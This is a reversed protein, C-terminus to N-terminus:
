LCVIVTDTQSVTKFVHNRYGLRCVIIRRMIFKKYSEHLSLRVLRFQGIIKDPARHRPALCIHVVPAAKRSIHYTGIMVIRLATVLLTLRYNLGMLVISESKQIKYPMILTHRSRQPIFDEPPPKRLILIHLSPM